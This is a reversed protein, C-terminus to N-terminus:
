WTWPLLKSRPRPKAKALGVDVTHSGARPNGLFAQLSGARDVLAVAVQYGSKACEAEAAIVAKNAVAPTLARTQICPKEDAVSMVSIFSCLLLVIVNGYLKM